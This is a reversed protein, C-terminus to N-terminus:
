RSSPKPLAQSRGKWQGGSGRYYAAASYITAAVYFMAVIPLLPSWLPSRRYFRLMPLYAICLLLWALGLTERVFVVPAVYTLLLGALTGTLILPSYRLQTYATRAIMHFVDGFSNYPRISRVRRSLSLSVRGGNDKIRRALSCDDIWESRITRVGGINFLATANLLMCGGAAGATPRNRNAIWRPPYLMFFFFVFAPILAREPLTECHLYAMVSTLASGERTARALLSAISGHGHEIDADTLLVYHPDLGRAYDIGQQVAWLKGTWGQPLPPANLVTLRNPFASASAAAAAIESTGDSSADDVVIVHVGQQLLSTVSRGIVAAENRAPVVAVIRAPSTIAEDRVRLPERWFGGRAALLYM